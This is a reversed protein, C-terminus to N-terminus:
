FKLEQRYFPGSNHGRLTLGFRGDPPYPTINHSARRGWGLRAMGHCSGWPPEGGGDSTRDKRGRGRAAVWPESSKQYDMRADHPPHGHRWPIRTVDSSKLGRPAHRRIRSGAKMRMGISAAEKSM